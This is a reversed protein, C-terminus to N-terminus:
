DSITVKVPDQTLSASMDVYRYVTQSFTSRSGYATGKAKFSVTLSASAKATAPNQYDLTVRLNSFPDNTLKWKITSSDVKQGSLQRVGFPCGSPALKKQSLCANVQAKASKEFAAQGVDTLTAKIDTASPYDGPSKLLLSSDSGYSINKNGSDFTYSGPFINIKDTKVPVKNVLMPVTKSRIYSLNLAAYGTRVKWSDGVKKVTIKDSVAEKGLKYSADVSYAYEDPVDPVNIDTIPARSNSDALVADTLFTKDAPQDDSLALATQAQGAALAELYSKVADSAKSAAPPASSSGPDTPGEATGGGRNMFFVGAGVGLIILALVAAGIIILVKANSNKRPPLGGPAGPGTPQGPGSPGM